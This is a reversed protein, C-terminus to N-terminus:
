YPRSKPDATLSSETAQHQRCAGVFEAPTIDGLASRATIMAEPLWWASVAVPQHHAEDLLGARRDAVAPSGPDTLLLSKRTGFQRRVPAVDHTISGDARAHL